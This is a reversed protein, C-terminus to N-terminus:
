PGINKAHKLIRDVGGAINIFVYTFVALNDMDVPAAHRGNFTCHASCGVYVAWLRQIASCLKAVADMSNTHKAVPIMRMDYLDVM